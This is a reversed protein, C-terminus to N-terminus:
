CMEQRVSPILRHCVGIAGFSTKKTHKELAHMFIFKVAFLNEKKSPGTPAAVAQPSNFMKRALAADAVGQGSRWRAKESEYRAHNASYGYGSSPGSSLVPGSMHAPSSRFPNTNRMSFMNSTLSGRDFPVVKPAEYDLDEGALAHLHVM